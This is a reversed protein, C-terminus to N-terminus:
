CRTGGRSRSRRRRSFLRRSRLRRPRRQRAERLVAPPMAQRLRASRRWDWRPLPQLPPSRPHRGGAGTGGCRTRGRAPWAPRAGGPGSRGQAQPAWPSTAFVRLSLGPLPCSPAVVARLRRIASLPVRNHACECGGSAKHVPELWPRRRFACPQAHCVRWAGLPVPLRSAPMAARQVRLATSQESPVVVALPLRQLRSGSAAQRAHAGCMIRVRVWPRPEPRRVKTGGVVGGVCAEVCARVNMWQPRLRAPCVCRNM